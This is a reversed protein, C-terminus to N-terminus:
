NYLDWFCVLVLCLCFSLIFIFYRNEETGSTNIKTDHKEKQPLPVFSCYTPLFHHHLFNTLQAPFTWEAGRHTCTAAPQCWRHKVGASASRNAESQYDGPHMKGSLVTHQDGAHVRLRLAPQQLPPWPLLLMSRFFSLGCRVLLWVYM